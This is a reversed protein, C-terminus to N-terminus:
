ECWDKKKGKGNYKVAYNAAILKEALSIGNIMVDGIVRGGYKDWKILKVRIMKGNKIEEQVYATAQQSLNEEYPCKAKKGKEPTDIGNIRISLTQKLEKPLFPASILITDGDIVRIIKLNYEARASTCFVFIAAIFLLIRM